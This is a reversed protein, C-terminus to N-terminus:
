VQYNKAIPLAFFITAGDGPKSEVWIRGGHREVIKKCIALGIGTGPYQDRTHLRQFIVFIREFYQPDIGIGNDRVHFVCEEPQPERRATVSAPVPCSPAPKCEVGIHITPTTRSRFKLANGILNQFLQTLQVNDALLTPLPDRTIAAGTEEIALRLNDLASQLADDASIIGMPKARTGVRSYALLDNILRQMRHAGTIVFGMFDRADHDLLDHYRKAILQTYSTIMRLPEQLDHSAVYAFQELEKNSRALDTATRALTEEALKRETVDWFIVQTGVIDGKADRVPAKLVHVYLLKGDPKRHEEIDEFMTGTTVVKDDDKSYKEALDRPFLDFDTKGLLEKIPKKMTESYGKNGYTVRGQLDKRIINIPLTDVLSHYLAESDRLSLEARKREALETNLAATKEYIQSELEDTHLILRGALPRLLQVMGFTAAVVFALIGGLLAALRRSIPGYFESKSKKVLVGWNVGEVPGYAIVLSPDPSQDPLLLGTKGQQAMALAVRIAATRASDDKAHTKTPRLPFFIPLERNRLDGVITEGSEGQDSYDQVMTKLMALRYLVIDTGIRESMRSLVPGAAVVFFDNGIRVPGKLAGERASSNLVPWHQRPIPAGEQALINGAADLVCIGVTNSTFSMTEKVWQECAARTGELSQRKEAYAELTERLRGRNLNVRLVPSNRARAVYNEVARTQRRLDVQLNKEQARRLQTALPLIGALAAMGGVALMGLASYVVIRKQLKKAFHQDAM